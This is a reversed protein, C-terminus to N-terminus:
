LKGLLEKWRKWGEDRAKRNPETAEPEEGSRMFGHGAGEYTVPEYRKGLAKTAEETAPVTANVRADNGGYFGYVPCAIRALAEEDQPATGYFVFAAALGRRNTAFRFSQAGGWCFGAVAVKGTSSPLKAVYDAVADLDATVQDPSLKSIGERAADSTPFDSTKGGGPASGSLLDPAIAILGAEALQDAVGRVWDTLGRNEHIVVVAAAKAKTEPFALFAHVTRDGHKVAVWEHHRPSKELRQLAWEQGSAFRAVALFAALSLGSQRM